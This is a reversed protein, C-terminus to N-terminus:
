FREFSQPSKMNFWLQGILPGHAADPGRDGELSCQQVRFTPHLTLVVSIHCMRTHNCTMHRDDFHTLHKSLYILLSLRESESWKRNRWAGKEAEMKLLSYIVLVVIHLYCSFLSTVTTAIFLYTIIYIVLNTLLRTNTPRTPRTTRSARAWHSTPRTPRTAV